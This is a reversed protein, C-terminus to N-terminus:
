QKVGRARKYAQDIAQERAKTKLKAEDEVQLNDAHGVEKSLEAQVAKLIPNEANVSKVKEELGVVSSQLEDLSAQKEALAVEKEAVQKAIEEKAAVLADFAKIVSQRGEDNLKAMAKATASSTESDFAYKILSFEASKVANEYLLTEVQEQLQKVLEDSMTEQKGKHITNDDGAMVAEANASTSPTNTDSPQGENVNSPNKKKDLLTLEEDLSEVIELQEKTLLRKIDDKSPPMAKGKIALYDNYLSAAGGQSADTYAIHAHRFRFNVDSLERHDEKEDVKALAGISLGLLTKNKRYEYAQRKNFVVECLPTGKKVYKDNIYCDSSMVWAHSVKFANTKLVHFWSSQLWGGRNAENFNDVFKVMEDFEAITDGHADVEGVPCYLIEIVTMENDDFGKTTLVMPDKQNFSSFASVLASLLKEKTDSM